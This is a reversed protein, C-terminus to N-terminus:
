KGLGDSLAGVGISAVDLLKGLLSPRPVHIMTISVDLVERRTASATFSLSQVQMDTRITMSTVLILGGVAGGSMAALATGRKSAEAMTELAFKWAFREVGVLVGALTVTDDHTAVIARHATSGIPPLHYTESLSLQTVSWLPIPLIGDSIIASPVHAYQMFSKRSGKM